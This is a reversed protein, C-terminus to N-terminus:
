SIYATLRQVTRSGEGKKYSKYSTAEVRAQPPLDQLWQMIETVSAPLEISTKTSGETM